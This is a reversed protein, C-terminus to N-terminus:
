ETKRTFEGFYKEEAVKRAQIAAEKTVFTGLWIDKNNCTITAKWKGNPLQSVGTYGSKNRKSLKRNKANTSRSAIRLNSKRNDNPKGNIHDIEIESDKIGLILRHASIAIPKNDIKRVCIAYGRSNYWTYDKLIKYDELDFIFFGGNNFYCIGHEGTLDYINTKSQLVRNHEDRYCGCSTTYGKRLDLGSINKIKGCDCQCKWMTIIGGNKKIKPKAIELVVLRGFRQGTM